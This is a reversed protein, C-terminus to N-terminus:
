ESKKAFINGSELVCSLARVRSFCPFPLSNRGGPGTILERGKYNRRKM